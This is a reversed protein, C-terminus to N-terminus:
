NLVKAAVRLDLNSDQDRDRGTEGRLGLGNAADIGEVPRLDVWHRITRGPALAAGESISKARIGMAGGPEAPKGKAGDLSLSQM